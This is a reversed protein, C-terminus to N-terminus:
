ERAITPIGIRREMDYQVANLFVAMSGKNVCTNEQYNLRKELLFSNLNIPSDIQQFTYQM